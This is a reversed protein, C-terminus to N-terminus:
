PALDFAIVCREVNKIVPITEHFLSSPFLVLDGNRPQYIREPFDERNAPYDYGQLGFKIAGENQHPSEVTKLYLVGSVWGSEHIHSGQYGNQCMRVYWATINIKDPWNQILISKDDEFKSKFLMLEKKLINELIKMNPSPSSFLDNSTQFGSKTTKDRPEWVANIQNMEDLVEGLFENCDTLHNKVHSFNILEMPNQCFPYSDEQPIQNAAFASLAAVRINAPHGTAISELRQNFGNYDKLFYMCELSKAIPISDNLKDFCKIAEEFKGQAQFANGMNNYAKAYDPKLTLAKIYSEIAEEPKGQEQLANGMNYHAKAHNPAISLAKRFAEIAGDLNGQDKLSTGIRNYTEIDQPKIILSKNYAIIAEEPKGQEQLTNGLNYLADAYNPKIALAKNFAKIASDPKGQDKLTTGMNNFAAAYDPKIEIARKYKEIAADTLGLGANVVASINYLVASQPFQQLLQSAHNLAQQLQGNSFLNILSQLQDQPPDQLSNMKNINSPNQASNGDSLYSANPTNESKDLEHKIKDFYDGKAGKEKAKNIMVKAENSKGLNILADIYSPWFQANTNNAGAELAVKFFPLAEQAKGIGILLLGMNYNADPHRPQERLITNYLQNAEQIKGSKHAAIAKQLTQGVTGKM